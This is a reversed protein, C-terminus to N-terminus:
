VWDTPTKFYSLSKEEWSGPEPKQDYEYRCTLPLSMLISEIRGGTKLGFVTGRDYVLNYEARRLCFSVLRLADAPTLSPAGWPQCLFRRAWGGSGVKRGVRREVGGRFTGAYRGRRIQQWEHQKQTFPEDKRREVLPKYAKIVSKACDTSFAFIDSQDGQAGGAPHVLPV